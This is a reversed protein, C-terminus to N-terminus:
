PSAACRHTRAQPRDSWRERRSSRAGVGDLTDSVSSMTAHSGSVPASDIVAASNLAPVWSAAAIAVAVSCSMRDLVARRASGAVLRPRHRSSACRGHPRCCGAHAARPSRCWPPRQMGGVCGDRGVQDNRRAGDDGRRVAQSAVERVRALNSGGPRRPRRPGESAVYVPTDPVDALPESAVKSTATAELVMVATTFAGPLPYWASSTM